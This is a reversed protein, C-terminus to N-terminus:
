PKHDNVNLYLATKHISYHLKKVYLMRFLQHQALRTVFILIGGQSAVAM